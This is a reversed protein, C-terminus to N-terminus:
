ASMSVTSKVSEIELYKKLRRLVSEDCKLRSMKIDVFINNKPNDLYSYHNNLAVLVIELDSMEEKKIQNVGSGDYREGLLFNNKQKILYTNSIMVRDEEQWDEKIRISELKNKLSHMPINKSLDMLNLFIESYIKSLFSDNYYGLMFACLAYSTALSMSRKFLDIDQNLLEKAQDRKVTSFFKWAMQNIEFQTIEERCLKSSFLELLKKRFPKKDQVLLEAQYSKFYESFDEQLQLDIQNEIYLDHEALHLKEIMELNLFNTKKSLLVQKGSKQRWYIDGPSLILGKVDKLNLKM